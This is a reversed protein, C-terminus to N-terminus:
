NRIQCHIHNGGEIYALEDFSMTHAIAIGRGNKEHIREDDTTLFPKWNFGNGDDKIDFSVSDDAVVFSVRVYHSKFKESALRECTVEDLMQEDLLKAKEDYSIGLNGHEIANIFVEWLGSYAREPDATLQSLFTAIRQAQVPTQFRLYGSHTGDSLVKQLTFDTNSLGYSLSFFQQNLELWNKKLKEYGVDIMESHVGIVNFSKTEYYEELNELFDALNPNDLPVDVAVVWDFRRTILAVSLQNLDIVKAIWNLDSVILQLRGCDSHNRVIVLVHLKNM